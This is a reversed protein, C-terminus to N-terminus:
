ALYIAAILSAVGLAVKNAGTYAPAECQYTWEPSPFKEKDQVNNGLSCARTVDAKYLLAGEKPAKWHFCCTADKTATCDAKDVGCSDNREGDPIPEPAPEEPAEEKEEKDSDDDKKKSSKKKQAVVVAAICAYTVFKM